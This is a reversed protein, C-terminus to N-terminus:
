GRPSPFRMRCRRPSHWRTRTTSSGGIAALVDPGRNQLGIATGVARDSIDVVDVTVGAQGFASAATLGAIGSGVM